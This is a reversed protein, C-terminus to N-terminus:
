NGGLLGASSLDPDGEMAKVGVTRNRQDIAWARMINWAVLDSEYNLAAAEAFVAGVSYAGWSESDCAAIGAYKSSAPCVVHLHGCARNSYDGPSRAGRAAQLDVQSLGGTCDSHRAEHILITQRYAEPLDYTLDTEPDYGQRAYGPGPVIIGVRSSNVSIMQGDIRLSVPVGNVASLLWILTGYNTAGVQTRNARVDETVVSGQEVLWNTYPFAYAALQREVPRADAFYRARADLFRLVDSGSTGGFIRTFLGDHKEDYLAPGRSDLSALAARDEKMLAVVGSHSHDDHTGCGASALAGFAVFIIKLNGRFM